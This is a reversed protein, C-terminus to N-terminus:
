AADRPAPALRRALSQLGPRVVLFLRYLRELGWLVVPIRAVHGLPSLLPIARWMAAFAAAGSVLPGGAERAHFRQLLSARDIPCAADGAVDIFDIGARRDLRRFLAIERQCLPCEGDYWVTVQPSKPKPTM